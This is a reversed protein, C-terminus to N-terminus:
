GGFGAGYPNSLSTVPQYSYSPTSPYGTSGGGGYNQLYNNLAYQNAYNTGINALNQYMGTRANAQNIQGTALANGQNQYINGLNGATNQGLNALTGSATQGVQATGAYRNMLGELRGLYGPRGLYGTYDQLALGQGFKVLDKSYGGFQGSGLAGKKLTDIGQQQLWGYGPSQQYQNPDMVAGEYIGQIRELDALSREGAARWPALDARSQNYMQLQAQTAQNAAGSQLQAAQKAADSQDSSSAISAGISYGAAAGVPGGAFFGGVAGVYPAIDSFFSM